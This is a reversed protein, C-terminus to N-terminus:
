SGTAELLTHEFLGAMEIAWASQMNQESLEPLERTNIDPEGLQVWSGVRIDNLVQLVWELEYPSLTFTFGLESEQFRNPQALMEELNRKNERQQEALAEELLEQNARASESKAGGKARYHATSLIPYRRLLTLFLDRERKGILFTFATESRNLLKV